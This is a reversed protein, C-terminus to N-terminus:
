TTTRTRAAREEERRGFGRAWPNATIGHLLISFIITVAAVYVVLKGHPLGANLVIVAFVVSALGRPGFWGTFLKAETSMPYGTLSLFVPLMRVVTLSLLAYILIQWNLHALAPGAVLAGFSTWTILSLLNGFSETYGLFEEKEEKDVIRNLTLGGVFSAIFGSGGLAQALSFCGLALMALTVESWVSDRWGRTGAFRGLWAAVRVLGFGVVLGIGIEEVFLHLMLNGTSQGGMDRGTALTLFLLLVPVSIGDNLGSEVNLGERYAAPVSPNTIVPEGLAADTPALLTALLAIELAPVHNFVILGALYGAGITLPLGVLLLRIPLARVRRLVDIDASGADTFLVLALTLEALTKITERDAALPLINLGSPGAMLGFLSFVLAASLWTRQIGGAFLSYLFAFLALVTLTQYM